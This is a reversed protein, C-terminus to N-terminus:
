VEELGFHWTEGDQRAKKVKFRTGAKFLVEDEPYVTFGNIDRGTKSTITLQISGRYGGYAGTSTFAEYTVFGGGQWAALHEAVFREFETGAIDPIGRQVRGSVIPLKDLVVNIADRILLVTASPATRLYANLDEFGEQAYYILAKIAEEPAAIKKLAAPIPNKFASEGWLMSMARKLTLPPLPVPPEPAGPIQKLAARLKKAIEGGIKGATQEALEFAQPRLSAGPAYDFGPDIGKPVRVTRPNGTRIGVTKDIYEIEPAKDAPKLGKTKLSAPSESFVKCRCGHGNAPFHSQWWPDRAPLILGDWAKHELRPNQVQDDHKYRWFPNRALYDPDTLQAYRGANYAQRLNTEYIIRTRWNRSGNYAWGHKRIIDDFRKRFEELGEGDKVASQVAGRLDDLLNAKHAGAVMFSTDHMDRWVDTYQQTPTNTKALWFAIAESFPQRPATM